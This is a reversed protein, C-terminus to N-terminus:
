ASVGALEDLGLMLNLNQVAAGGAGKGLNDLRAVVLLHGEGGFVMLDVRNSGNCREPDLFGDELAGHGDPRIVEICPEAAYREELLDTLEAADLPRRLIGHPLPVQVLMGKYYHAVMPTFLPPHRLGCYHQMEPLHKHGLGLAYGRPPLLAAVGEEERQRYRDVMARGGGSYGSIAHTSVLAGPDLVGADLLPRVALIFGTSYCGPNAVRAASQIAARQSPNLEPLGFVWDPAIRHATSADLVRVAPNDILAVAELAAADPLCLIVVDASNLLEARAEPDKRRAPTIEILEVDAREALRAHIELGTTGAQGDIFVRHPM